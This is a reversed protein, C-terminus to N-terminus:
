SANLYKPDISIRLVTRLPIINYWWSREGEMRMMGNIEGGDDAACGLAKTMTQIGQSAEELNGPDAVIVRFTGEVTHVYIPIMAEAQEDTYQERLTTV